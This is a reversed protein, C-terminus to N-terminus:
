AFYTWQRWDRAENGKGRTHQGWAHRDLAGADAEARGVHDGDISSGGENATGFGDNFGDVGGDGTGFAHSTRVGVVVLVWTGGGDVDSYCETRVLNLDSIRIEIEPSIGGVFAHASACYVNL